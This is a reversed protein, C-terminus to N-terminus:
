SPLQHEGLHGIVEIHLRDGISKSQFAEAPLRNVLDVFEQRTSDFSRIVAPDDLDHVRAVARANFADVDYDPSRFNPDALMKEVTPMGDQWWAVVHGLLDALRAYGQQQLFDAQAQPSLRRFGEVYTGWGNQLTDILQERTLETM